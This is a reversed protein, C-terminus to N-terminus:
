LRSSAVALPLGTAREQDALIGRVSWFYHFTAWFGTPVLFLMALRLSEANEVHGPGFWDALAGVALPAVILNGFNAVFLTAACFIARM